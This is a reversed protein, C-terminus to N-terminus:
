PSLITKSAVGAVVQRTMIVTMIATVIVIVIVTVAVPHVQVLLHLPPCPRSFSCFPRCYCFVCVTYLYWCDCYTQLVPLCLVNSRLCRIKECYKQTQVKGSHGKLKKTVLLGGGGGGSGSGGFPALITDMVPPHSGPPLPGGLGAPLFVLALGQGGRGGSCFRQYRPSM